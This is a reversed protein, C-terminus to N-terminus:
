GGWTPVYDLLKQLASPGVDAVASLADMDAIPRAAVINASTDADLGVDDDLVTQSAENAIELVVAQEEATFTVGEWTGDAIPRGAQLWELIALITQDGVQSVADVEDLTDYPDDDGTGCSADAGDRHSTLNAASDSDLPVDDDLVTDTTDCDNLFDLILGVEADSLGLREQASIADPDKTVSVDTNCALLLAVFM